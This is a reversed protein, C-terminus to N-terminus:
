VANAFEDFPVLNGAKQQQQVKETSQVQPSFGGGKAKVIFENVNKFGMGRAMVKLMRIMDFQGALEPSSGIIQFTRVMADIDEAGSMLSDGARLDYKVLIDFPTVPIRDEEVNFDDRLISEFDGVTRVYATESMYQQTNQAIQEAIDQHAILSTLTAFTALRSLASDMTDRSETATVRASTERRLGRLVDVAGTSDRMMERAFLIDNFFNTTVDQAPLPIMADKVGRGWHEPNTRVIMGPGPFDLDEVHVMMPDLLYGNNMVMRVNLMRTNFSWSSFDQLGKVIELKAIPVPSRGNFESAAIVINYQGHINDLNFAQIIVNDGSLTFKWREPIKSKSLGWDNPILTIQQHILDVPFSYANNTVDDGKKSNSSGSQSVISSIGDTHEVYQVNFWNKPDNKERSLLEIYNSGDGHATFEGKQIEEVPVNPDPYYAYPNIPVLKNGEFRVVSKSIKKRTPAGRGLTFIGNILKEIPKAARETTRNGREVHWQISMPGIGYTLENSWMIYLSMLAKSRYMQQAIVREMMAAGPIDEASWGSYRFLPDSNFTAMMYTLITERNAYLEPIVIPMPERPSRLKLAKEEKTLDVFATMMKDMEQWKGYNRSMYIQGINAKDLIYRALNDHTEGGPKLLANNPYKYKFNLDKFDKTTIRLKGVTPNLIPIPM